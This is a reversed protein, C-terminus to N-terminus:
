LFILARAIDDLRIYDSLLKGGNEMEALEEIEGEIANAKTSVM